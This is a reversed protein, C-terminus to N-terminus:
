KNNQKKSNTQVKRHSANLNNRNKKIIWIKGNSYM